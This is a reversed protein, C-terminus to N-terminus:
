IDYFVFSAPKPDLDTASHDLVRFKKVSTTDVLFTQEISFYRITPGKLCFNNAAHSSRPPNPCLHILPAVGQLPPQTPPSVSSATIQPVFSQMVVTSVLWSRLLISETGLLKLAEASSIQLMSWMARTIFQRLLTVTSLMCPVTRLTSRM